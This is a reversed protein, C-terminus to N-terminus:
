LIDKQNNLINSSKNYLFDLMNYVVIMEELLREMDVVTNKSNDTYSFPAGKENIPYRSYTFNEDEINAVKIFSDIIDCARKLQKYDFDNNIKTKCAIIISKLEKILLNIKHGNENTEYKDKLFAKFNILSAKLYTETGHTINFIIPFILDDAIIDTKNKNLCHNLLIFSSNFYACGFEALMQAQDNKLVNWNLYATKSMDDNYTFFSPMNKLYKAILKDANNAKEIDLM